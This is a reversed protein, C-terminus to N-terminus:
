AHRERVLDDAVAPLFDAIVRAEAEMRRQEDSLDSDTGLAEYIRDTERAMEAAMERVTTFLRREESLRRFREPEVEELYDLIMSIYQPM